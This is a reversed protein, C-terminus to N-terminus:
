SILDKLNQKLLQPSFQRVVNQSQTPTRPTPQFVLFGKAAGINTDKLIPNKLPGSSYASNGIVLATRMEQAATVISPLSLALFMFCRILHVLFRTEKKM